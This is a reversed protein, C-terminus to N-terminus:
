RFDFVQFFSSKQIRIVNIEGGGAQMLVDPLQLALQAFGNFLGPGPFLTHDHYVSAFITIDIRIIGGPQHFGHNGFIAWLHDTDLGAM